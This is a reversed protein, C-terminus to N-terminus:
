FKCTSIKVWQLGSHSQKSIPNNCIYDSFNLHPWGTYFPSGEDLTVLTKISFAFISVAMWLPLIGHSRSPLLTKLGLSTLFQWFVVLLYSLCKSCIKGWLRWFSGFRSLGQDWAGLRRFQSIIFKQQQLWWNTPSAIVTRAFWHVIDFVNPLHQYLM